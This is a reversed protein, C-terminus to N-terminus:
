RPVQGPQYGTSYEPGLIPILPALQTEYHRWISDSNESTTQLQISPPISAADLGCHELLARMEGAPNRLASEYDLEYIRGAPLTDRWHQMLRMHMRFYRGLEGVNYGYAPHEGHNRHSFISVCTDLPHRRVYIIAAHPLAAHIAGIFLPLSDSSDVVRLIEGPRAKIDDLYAEGIRVWASTDLELMQELSMAHNDNASLLAREFLRPAPANAVQPHTCLAKAIASKGSDPMGVIFIPTPDSLQSSHPLPSASALLTEMRTLDADPNYHSAAHAIDNATQFCAFAADFNKLDELAKGKALCLQMHSPTNAPCRALTQEIRQLDPDAADEFSKVRALAEYAEALSPNISISARLESEAKENEGEAMWLKGLQCHALAHNPHHKIITELHKRGEDIRGARLCAYFLPMLLDPDRPHRKAAKELTSVAEETRDQLLLLNSLGIRAPLSDTDLEIAAQYREMAQPFMRHDMYFKALNSHFVARKPARNIAAIFHLEAKEPQGTENAIIGRLNEVDPNGPHIREIKQCWQECVGAERMALAQKASELMEAIKRKKNNSLKV